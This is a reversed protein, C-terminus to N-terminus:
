YRLGDGTALSFTQAPSVEGWIVVAGVEGKAGVPDKVDGGLGIRLRQLPEKAGVYQLHQALSALDVLAPDAHEQAPAVTPTPGTWSYTACIPTGLRGAPLAPPPRM